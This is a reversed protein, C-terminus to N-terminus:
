FLHLINKIKKKDALDMGDVHLRRVIPITAPDVQVVEGCAPCTDHAAQQAASSGRPADFETGCPCQRNTM